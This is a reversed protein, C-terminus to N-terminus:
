ERTTRTRLVVADFSTDVGFVVATFNIVIDIEGAFRETYHAPLVFSVESGNRVLDSLAVDFFEMTNTERNLWRVRISALQTNVNAMNITDYDITITRANTDANFLNSRLLAEYLPAEAGDVVYVGQEAAMWLANFSWSQGQFQIRDSVEQTSVGWNIVFGSRNDDIITEMFNLPNLANGSINGFGLDFQGILMKQFYADTWVDGVWHTFRITIPAGSTNFATEWMAVISAFETVNGQTQWAIEIEVVDGPNYHGAAVLQNGAHYFLARAQPLSFGYEDVGDAGLFSAAVFDRYLDSQPWSLGNLPDWLYNESFFNFSADRGLEDSIAQRNTAFQLGWLFSQNSMIPKVDWYNEPANQIVVGNSGFLYEWREQTTSNINMKTTSGPASRVARPDNRFEALRAAPIAAQHLNGALFERFATQPDTAQGPLVRYHLGAINNSRPGIYNDNNRFVIQQGQDWHEVVFQGSASLATDIPTWNNASVFSAYNNMGGIATVFERPLPQYLASNLNWMAFFQNMPTTFEFELFNRGGEVVANIGVNDWAAQSFGEGTADFYDRAGVILGAGTLQDQARVLGNSQNWIEQFPVLYDELAVNRNNFPAFLANTSLTRYQVQAGTRVEVRWTTGFYTDLNAGATTPQPLGIALNDFFEWGDRTANLNTQWFSGHTDDHIDGVTAAQSAMGNFHNPDVTMWLHYYERWAPNGQTMLPANIRGESIIGFGFGPVAVPAGMTVDPHILFNGNNAFLTIGLLSNELAWRELQALIEKREAFSSTVFSHATGSHNLSLQDSSRFEYPANPDQTTTTTGTTTTTTTATDRNCGVLAIVAVASLFLVLASKLYGKKM